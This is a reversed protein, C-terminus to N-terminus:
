GRHRGPAEAPPRVRRGHARYVLWCPIVVLAQAVAVGWCYGRAGDLAAGMVCAVLAMPLYVLNFALLKGVGRQGLIGAKPGTILGLMVASVGTALLLPRAVEWTDGLLQRGLVDPLLLMVALNLAAVVATVTTTRRVHGAIVAADSGARSVEATGAAIAATELTGYPRVLLQAGLAAGVARTGSIVSLSLTAVLVAGQGTTYAALYRWSLKWTERMWSLSLTLHHHRHRWLLLLGAAAGSGSWAAVFWPVSELDAVVLATVGAIVLLLWAVDLLLADGPRQTAFGLYRGLDQMVLLPLAAALVLLGSGLAQSWLLAVLGCTAVLLGLWFGLVLGSGIADGPREQAEVPHVLLPDGLLGRSAGQVLVYVQFIIGFLGFSEVGLVRAALVAVLVNSGGAVIQDLTIASLRRGVSGGARSM